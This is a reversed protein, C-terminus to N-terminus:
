CFHNPSTNLYTTSTPLLYDCIIILLFPSFFFSTLHATFWHPLLVVLQARFVTPPPRPPRGITNQGKLAIITNYLLAAGNTKMPMLM